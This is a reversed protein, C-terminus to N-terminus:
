TMPGCPLISDKRNPSTCLYSSYFYVEIIIRFQKQRFFICGDELYWCGKKKGKKKKKPAEIEWGFVQM